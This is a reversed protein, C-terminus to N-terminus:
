NNELLGVEAIKWRDDEYEFRFECRTKTTVIGSDIESPNGSVYDAIVIYSDGRKEPESVTFRANLPYWPMWCITRNTNRYLEGNRYIFMSVFPSNQLEESSPNEWTYGDPYDGFDRDVIPISRLASYYPSSFNNLYDQTFLEKLSNDIDEPTRKDPHSYPAFYASIETKDSINTNYVITRSSDIYDYSMLANITYNYSYVMSEFYVTEPATESVLQEVESILWRGEADKTLKFEYKFPLSNVEANTFKMGAERRFVIESDTKSIINPEDTFPAIYRLNENNELLRYMEGKYEVFAEGKYDCLSRLADDSITDGENVNDDLKYFADVYLGFAFDTMGSSSKIEDITHANWFPNNRNSYDDEIRYLRVETNDIVTNDIVKNYFTFSCETSAPREHIYEMLQVYRDSLNKATGLVDIQAELPKVNAKEGDIIRSAIRWESQDNRAVEFVYPMVATNKVIDDASSDFVMVESNFDVKITFSDDSKDTIEFKDYTLHKSVDIIYDVYYTYLEGNYIFFRANADGAYFDYSSYSEGDVFSSKDIADRLDFNDNLFGDTMYKAGLERFDAMSNISTDAYRAITVDEGDVSFVVKTNPDSEPCEIRTCFDAYGDLLYAAIKEYDEQTSPSMMDVAVRDNFGDLTGNKVYYVLGGSGALLVGAAAVSALRRKWVPRSYREVGSVTIGENFSVDGTDKNFKRESMKYIRNREEASLLPLQEPFENGIRSFLDDIDHKKSM